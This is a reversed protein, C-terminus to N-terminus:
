FSSRNYMAKTIKDRDDNKRPVVTHWGNKVLFDQRTWETWGVIVQEIDHKFLETIVTEFIRRNGSGCKATNIVKKGTREAM